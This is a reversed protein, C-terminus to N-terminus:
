ATLQSLVRRFNGGLIGKIATGSYGRQMLGDTLAFMREPTNLGDIRYSAPGGRPDMDSGIGIYEVGVLRAVHDFHDLVDNITVTRASSVFNRISTIGMVGGQKAMATIVADSKCRPHGVLAKCNSHTILVPKTSAEFTDLTTREGAHSVDIAMGCANMATVVSVGYPTLGPDNPEVCGYGLQNAENYTLQSVRQGCNHFLGVDETTRFHSSNQMGLLVGIKGTAKAEDLDNCCAVRAFIDARADLFSNWKAFLDRAKQYSKVTNLDVAPHFLTIGSTRIVQLDNLTFSNPDDLWGFFRPWDLTLLGLMDVVVSDNVLDVARVSYERRSAASLRCRGLNLM